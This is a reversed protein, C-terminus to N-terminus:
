QNQALTPEHRPLFGRPEVPIGSLRVEYHLHPGTANGTAGSYGILWGQQVREGQKVLTRSLHAYRTETEGNHHLIVIVGYGRMSGSYAVVGDATARVPTGTPVGFDIGDHTRGSSRLSGFESTVLTGASPIPHIAPRSMSPVAPPLPFGTDLPADHHACAGAFLCFVLAVPIRLCRLYNSTM